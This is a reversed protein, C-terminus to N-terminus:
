LHAKWLPMLCLFLSPSFNQPSKSQGRGQNCISDKRPSSSIRSLEEGLSDATLTNIHDKNCGWTFLSLRASVCNHVSLKLATEALGMRGLLECSELRLGVHNRFWDYRLCPVALGCTQSDQKQLTLTSMILNFRPYDTGNGLHGWPIVSATQLM